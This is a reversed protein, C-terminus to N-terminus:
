PTDSLLTGRWETSGDTNIEIYYTGSDNLLLMDGVEGSLSGDPNTTTVTLNYRGNVLEWLRRFNENIAVIANDNLETIHKPKPIRLGYSVGSLLLVITIILILIRM